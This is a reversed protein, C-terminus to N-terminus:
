CSAQAEDVVEDNSANSEHLLWRSDSLRLSWEIDYEIGAKGTTVDKGSDSRFCPATHVRQLIIVEGSENSLVETSLSEYSSKDIVGDRKLSSIVELARGKTPSGTTFVQSLMTIDRHEIARYSREVLSNFTQLAEEDTLSFDPETNTGAAGGPNPDPDAGSSTVGQIAAILLGAVLAIALAIAVLRVWQPRETPPDDDGSTRIKTEQM